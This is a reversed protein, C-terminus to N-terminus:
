FEFGRSVKKKQEASVQTPMMGPALNPAGTKSGLTAFVNRNQPALAQGTPNTTEDASTGRKIGRMLLMLDDPATSNMRAEEETILGKMWLNYLAQNFTQMHYHSGEQIAKELDRTAGEEILQRIYSTNLMIEIAAVRGQGDARKILRQSIVGRLLLGLQLRVQKAEPGEFSDLIRDLSQKADNTHLTSFVLHGTESATIAFRITEADRMEGMLIVDPDQRLAARLARHLEHTDIGLERQNITSRADTYVFEIPDEITVIHLQYKQNIHEIMAALTTSKGSGTPGTMVVLGNQHNCLEKLVEPLGMQEITPVELPVYRLVAGIEGRQIFANVRYRGVGPIEYSFDAEMEQMFIRSREPGMLHTMTFKMEEPTIVSHQNQGVLDGAIRFLPPRGTKIHLDSGANDKLEVLLSDLDM